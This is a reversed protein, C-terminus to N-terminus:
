KDWKWGYYGHQTGSEAEMIKFADVLRNEYGNALWIRAGPNNYKPDRLEDAIEQPTYPLGDKM